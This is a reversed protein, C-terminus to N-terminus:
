YIKLNCINQPGVLFLLVLFVVFFFFGKGKAISYVIKGFSVLFLEAEM